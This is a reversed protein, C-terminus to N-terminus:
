NCFINAGRYAYNAFFYSNDVILTGNNTLGGGYSSFGNRVFSCNNIKMNGSNLVAGGLNGKNNEFYINNLYVNSNLYTGDMIHITINISKDLAATIAHNITNFPNNKSGDGTTDNGSTSVWFEVPTRDIDVTLTAPNFLIIKGNYNSNIEHKGNDFLKSVSLTAVGKIQVM